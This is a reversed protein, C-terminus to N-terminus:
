QKPHLKKYVKVSTLLSAFDAKPVYTVRLYNDRPVSFEMTKTLIIKRTTLTVPELKNNDPYMASLCGDLQMSSRKPKKYFAKIEQLKAVAEELTSGLPIFLEYIPDFNISILDGGIGLNGVSLYYQRPSEDYMYFVELNTFRINAEESEVQAIEVRNRLVSKKEADQAFAIVPMAALLLVMISKKLTKM